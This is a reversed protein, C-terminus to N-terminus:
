ERLYAILVEDDTSDGQYLEDWSDALNHFQEALRVAELVHLDKKIVTKKGTETNEFLVMWLNSKYTVEAYIRRMIELDYIFYLYFSSDTIVKYSHNLM